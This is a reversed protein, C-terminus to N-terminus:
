STAEVLSTYGDGGYAGTDATCSLIHDVIEAHEHSTAQALATCQHNGKVETKSSRKSWFYLVNFNVLRSFLDLANGSIGIPGTLMLATKLIWSVFSIM